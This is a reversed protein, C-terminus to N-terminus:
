VFLIKFLPKSILNNDYCLMNVERSEQVLNLSGSILWWSLGLNRLFFDAKTPTKQYMCYSILGLHVCSAPLSFCVKVSVIPTCLCSPPRPFFVFPWLYQPFVCCCSSGLASLVSLRVSFLSVGLLSLQTTVPSCSPCLQLASVCLQNPPSSGDM